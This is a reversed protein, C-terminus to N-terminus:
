NGKLSELYALLDALEQTTLGAALGEPMTSMDRKGRRQITEKKLVLTEGTVNRLEIEDGSERTVFGEVPDGKTLKFWQTEFGQSIKAGPKLISECLESRNYRTSIGGLFPGKPPEEPSVTHCAGCGVKTFVLAGNAPKGEAATMAVLVDEYGMTGVAKGGARPTDRRGNRLVADALARKEASDSKALAEFYASRRALRRDRTIDNFASRLEEAGPEAVAIPALAAVLADLSANDNVDRALLRLAKARVAPPEDKSLAVPRVMALDDASLRQSSSLLDIMLHRFRSDAEALSAVAPGAEPLDIKHRKLDLVLSRLM